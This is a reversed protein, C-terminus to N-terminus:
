ITYLMPVTTVSTNHDESNSKFPHAKCCIDRLRVRLEPVGTRFYLAGSGPTKHYGNSKM